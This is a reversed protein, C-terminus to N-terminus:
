GTAEHGWDLAVTLRRAACEPLNSKIFCKAIKRFAMCRVFQLRKMAQQHKNCCPGLWTRKLEGILSAEM